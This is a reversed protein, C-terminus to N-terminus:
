ALSSAGPQCGVPGPQCGSAGQSVALEQQCGHNGSAHIMRAKKAAIACDSSAAASFVTLALERMRGLTRSVRLNSGAKTVGHKKAVIAHGNSAADRGKRAVPQWGGLYERSNARQSPVQDCLNSDAISM